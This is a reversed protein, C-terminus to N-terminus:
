DVVEVLVLVRCPKEQASDSSLSKEIEAAGRIEATSLTAGSTSFLRPNLHQAYPGQEVASASGVKGGSESEATTAGGIGTAGVQVRHLAMKDLHQPSKEALQQLAKAIQGRTAEVLVVDGIGAGKDSSEVQAGAAALEGKRAKAILATALPNNGAASREGIGQAALAEDLSKNRIADKSLSVRVILTQSSEDMAITAPTEKAPGESPVEPTVTESPINSPTTTAVSNSKDVSTSSFWGSSAGWIGVVLASAAVTLSLKTVLSWRYHTEKPAVVTEEAQIRAMVRRTFSQSADAESSLQYTPLSQFTTRLQKLETLLTRASADAKLRSEVASVEPASLEGDLYASLLEDSFEHSM